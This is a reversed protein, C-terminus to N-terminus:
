LNEIEKKVDFLYKNEKKFIEETLKGGNHLYYKVNQKIMEDVCIAACQKANNTGLGASYAYFRDVLEKAKEKPTM